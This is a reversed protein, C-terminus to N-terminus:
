EINLLVYFPWYTMILNPKHWFQLIPQVTSFWDMYNVMSVSYFLFIRHDDWGPASFVDSLVWYGIMIFVRLLSPNSPSNRLRSFRKNFFLVFCFSLLGSWVITFHQSIERQFWSCCLPAVVVERWCQVPPGLWNALALFLLLLTYPHFPLFWSNNNM